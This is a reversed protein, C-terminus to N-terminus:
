SKKTIFGLILVHTRIEKASRCRDSPGNPLLIWPVYGGAWQTASDVAGILRGMPYCSGHCWDAPWNPQMSQM